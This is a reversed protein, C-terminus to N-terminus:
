SQLIHYGAGLPDADPSLFTTLRARQYDRLMSWILPAAGAGAAAGAAFIWMPVGALFLLIGGSALLMMATGLDPQKLVLVVPVMILGAPAILNMLRGTNESPLGHFYRALAVILAIKMLESPQLQIVGLDIWRQAGMGIFGRLDVAIVLVLLTSSVLAKIPNRRREDPKTM